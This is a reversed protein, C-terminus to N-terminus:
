DVSSQKETGLQITCNDPMNKVTGVRKKGISTSSLVIANRSLGMEIPVISQPV